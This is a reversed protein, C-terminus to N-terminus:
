IHGETHLIVIHSRAVYIIKNIQNIHVKVLVPPIVYEFALLFDCEKIYDYNFFLSSRKLFTNNQGELKECYSHLKGADNMTKIILGTVGRQNSPM